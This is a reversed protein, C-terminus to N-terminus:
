RHTEVVVGIFSFIFWCWDRPEVVCRMISRVIDGQLGQCCSCPLVLCCPLDGPRGQGPQLNSQEGRWFPHLLCQTTVGGSSSGTVGTHLKQLGVCPRHPTASQWGWGQVSSSLAQFAARVGTGGAGDRMFGATVAVSMVRWSRVGDHMAGEGRGCLLTGLLAQLHFSDSPGGGVAGQNVRSQVAQQHTDGM